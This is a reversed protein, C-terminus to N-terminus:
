LGLISSLNNIAFEHEISVVKTVLEPKLNIYISVSKLDRHYYGRSHLFEMAEAIDLAIKLKTDYNLTTSTQLLAYLNM